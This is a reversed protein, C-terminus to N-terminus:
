RGKESLGKKRQAGSLRKTQLGIMSIGAALREEDLSAVSSKLDAVGEHPEQQPLDATTAAGQKTEFNRSTWIFPRCQCLERYRHSAVYEPIGGQKGSAGNLVGGM